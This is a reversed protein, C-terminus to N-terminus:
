YEVAKRILVRYEWPRLTLGHKESLSVEQGTFVENYDGTIQEHNLEIQQRAGSLNILVIVKNDDKARLFATVAEDNGIELFVAEGGAAGNRLAQNEAKMDNLTRYFDTFPSEKWDIADKTFFELMKDLGVEQGNYMLPMGPVTFSLVAFAKAGEGYRDFVTGAWSNEDHNSTFQLLYSDSPYVSDVWEFHERVARANANGKGIENMLHHFKWDYTADFATENLEPQDSEALMFVPKISDLVPKLEEWFSVPVMHAVDCRFGDINKEAVWFKMADMMYQRLESNEYDFRIVDTWDFPSVFNGVSDKMYFEPHTETLTNDWSSHNPVWDIIIHMDRDHIAAVLSEFDEMTGFEPNVDYYDKVAYYSGMPGKRNKEGIPHVPMLWLIDVGLTRLRDLEAEVAYFTGEESFQRVNVEYVSADRTWNAHNYRYNEIIRDDEKTAPTNCQQFVLASFFIYLIFQKPILFTTKSRM